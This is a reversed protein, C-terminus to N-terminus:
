LQLPKKPSQGPLAGAEGADLVLEGQQNKLIVQGELVQFKSLGNESVQVYLQTGRM